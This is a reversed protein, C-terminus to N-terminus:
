ESALLRYKKALGKLFGKMYYDSCAKYHKHGQKRFMASLDYKSVSVGGIQLINLMDESSLSLAIKLKKLVVNNVSKRNSIALKPKDPQGPKTERPGRKFTIFGNLFSELMQNTCTMYADSDEEEYVDLIDTEAPKMLMSSVDESTVDVHGLKFIKVMDEEEIRMTYSLEKILENNDM